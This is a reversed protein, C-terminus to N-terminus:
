IFHYLLFKFTAISFRNPFFRIFFCFLFIAFCESHESSM